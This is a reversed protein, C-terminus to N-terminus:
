IRTLRWTDVIMTRVNLKESDFVLFILIVKMMSTTTITTKTINFTTAITTETTTTKNEITANVEKNEKLM